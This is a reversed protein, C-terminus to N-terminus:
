RQFWQLHRLIFACRSWESIFSFLIMSLRLFMIIIFQITPFTRLGIATTNFNGAYDDHGSHDYCMGANSYSGCSRAFYSPFSFASSTILSLSDTRSTTPASPSMLPEARPRTRLASASFCFLFYIVSGHSVSFAFLCDYLTGILSSVDYVDGTPSNVGFSCQNLQM